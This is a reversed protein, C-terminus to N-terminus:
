DQEMKEITLAAGLAEQHQQEHQSSASSAMLLDMVGMLKLLRKQIAIEEHLNKALSKLEEDVKESLGMTESYLELYLNILGSYCCCYYFRSLVQETVEILVASFHPNTIYKKLFHLLPLTTEENRGSLASLLAGRRMLEQIM